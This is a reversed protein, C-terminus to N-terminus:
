RGGHLGSRANRQMAAFAPRSADPASPKRQGVSRAAVKRMFEDVMAQVRAAQEPDVPGKPEDVPVPRPRNMRERRSAAEECAKRCEGPTPWGRYTRAKLVATTAEDLVADPWTGVIKAFEAFYAAADPTEPLGCVVSLRGIMKATM